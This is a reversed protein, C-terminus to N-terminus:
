LTMSKIIIKNLQQSYSAAYTVCSILHTKVGTQMETHVRTLERFMTMHVCIMKFVCLFFLESFGGNDNHIYDSILIYLYGQRNESRM